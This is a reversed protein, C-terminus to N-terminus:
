VNDKRPGIDEQYWIFGPTHMTRQGMIIAYKSEHEKPLVDFSADFTRNTSLYLFIADKIGIEYKSEFDGGTTKPEM